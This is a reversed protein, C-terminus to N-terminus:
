KFLFGCSTMDRVESQHFSMQKLQNKFLDVLDKDSCLANRPDIFICRQVLDFIIHGFWGSKFSKHLMMSTDTSVLPQSGVSRTM